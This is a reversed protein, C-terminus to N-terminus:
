GLLLPPNKEAISVKKVKKIGEPNCFTTQIFNQPLNSRPLLFIKDKKAKRQQLYENGREVNPGITAPNLV